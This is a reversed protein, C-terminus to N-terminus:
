RCVRTYSHHPVYRAWEEHTLNRGAVACAHNEWGALSAPWVVGRGDNWVVVLKSGDPTFGASGWASGERPFSAGIVESARTSWLKALGDSGGTTAFFPLKPSFTISSVPSPAVLTPRGIEAGTRTNWLQEIGARTGTALVGDPRYALTDYSFANARTGGYLTLTRLTRGSRVDRIRVRGDEQAVAITRDDPSVAVAHVWGGHNRRVWGLRGTSVVWEAVAGYRWPTGPPTHNVDGAVLTRGDRSFAVAEVAESGVVGGGDVSQLGHLSRVLRPRRRVDWLQVVGSTSTVAVLPAKPSWAVDDMGGPVTIRAVLRRTRLSFIGVAGSALRDAIRSGDGSIALPPEPDVDFSTAPRTGADFPEGFRRETGLDWVFIAGDLSCTYLTHGDGSFAIGLVRSAHGVLHAIPTATAVDWAIVSGDEASSVLTRGDPSFRVGWVQAGHGGLGTRTRGSALEVFSVTGLETGLAVTRGDPSVAAAGPSRLPNTPLPVRTVARLTRPDIVTATALGVVVLRRGSRSLGIAEAGAAGIPRVVVRGSALNWRDVYALGDRGDSRAKDWALYAFRDDPSVVIDQFGGVGGVTDLATHLFVKDYSLQRVLAFTDARRVDIRPADVGGIHVTGLGVAYRGDPSFAVPMTYGFGHITERVRRTATDYVVVTGQNDSVALSRGDPSLSLRQPRAGFPYEMTGIVSPSRLLTALLTGETAPSNDLQVAERALLMALDIRPESVAEDGLQGALEVRAEHSATRGKQFALLGAVVAAVLLVGVSALLMRLRRNHARQRGLEREAEARSADLFERELDTLEATPLELAATLRAGRYLDASDRGRSNWDEASATVHARVRRGVRDDELWQAYRPWEQFLAEHSLEVLEGDVTLLRAAVLVNVVEAAGDLRQLDALRVRRRVLARDDGAALRLMIRRTLSQDDPSLNAFTEEALRAVAGRLGGIASYSEYRLVRSHRAAWLQLLTTQLLPLAGAAGATDAVLADVLPREVELGARSAPVEIARAIEDRDLSRLFVHSQSLRDAIRPHAAFHGYFDARVTVLVVARNRSDAAARELQDFFAFRDDGSVDTAFIEELQDVAIVIREGFDRADVAERVAGSALDGGRLLVVPWTASGPLAGAALAPLIGARLLSSKGVGSPGVIGLFTGGALRAVIEDLLHERGCFYFADAAEFAALGKFPCTAAEAHSGLPRVEDLGPDHQLMARELQQLARSPELGLEDALLDRTSRYVELADTQRGSRYLALMLQGRLREQFPNIRVLGELEPVLEGAGGLALDADIRDILASLRLEELRRAEPQVFELLELDALPPGRFLALGAALSAAAAGPDGAALASRGEAVLAEFEAVDLQESEARVFYGGPGTEITENDLLRRLRSVAVRVARVSVDSAEAGFLQEALHETTVLENAHLLLLALLGRQREGGLPLPEGDRLVELPGLLRFQLRITASTAMSSTNRELVASELTYGLGYHV